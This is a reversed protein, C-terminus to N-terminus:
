EALNGGPRNRRMRARRGGAVGAAVKAAGLERQIQLRERELELQARSEAMALQAEFQARAAALQQEAAAKHQDLMARFQAQAQELQMRGQATAAQAQQTAADSQMRAQLRAQEIQIKAAAEAAKPDPRPEPPALQEPDGLYDDVNKIGAANYLRRVAKHVHGPGVLYAYPTAALREMAELVTQAQGIQEAKNGIGLGVSITVDMEASWGSPDMPVWENRLRIVRERPQHRVLLGLVLKFLRKVGTEAFIRAIMEARENRSNEDIAAQTATHPSNKKLAEANFGNGKRQVGTREETQRAIYELMTFSHGATFPVSAWGLQGADKCRIVAGPAAIRVLSGPCICNKTSGNLASLDNVISSAIARWVSSRVPMKRLPWPKLASAIRLFLASVAVWAAISSFLRLSRASIIARIKASVPTFLSNRSIRM